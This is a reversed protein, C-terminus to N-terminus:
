PQIGPKRKKAGRSGTSRKIMANIDNCRPNDFPDDSLSSGLAPFLKKIM